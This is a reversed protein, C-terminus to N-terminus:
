KPPRGAVLSRNKSELSQILGDIGADRVRNAFETRYNLVLSVGGVHVNYVKWGAPTKEMDYDITVPQAGPQVVRAHVTVDTDTARLRLPKFDFKQDRYSTLASAYTRVLLTKFADTLKAKQEVSAKRWNVGMAQAAMGSFNFHPVVKAEVLAVIKARDGSQIDKDGSIIELVERTVDRVLVDPATAAAALGSAGLACAALFGRVLREARM